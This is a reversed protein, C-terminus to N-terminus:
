TQTVKENEKKWQKLITNLASRPDKVDEYPNKNFILKSISPNEQAESISDLHSKSLTEGLHPFANILLTLHFIPTSNIKINPKLTKIPESVVNRKELNYLHFYKDDVLDPYKQVAAIFAEKGIHTKLIEEGKIMKIANFSGGKSLFSDPDENEQFFFVRVEFGLTIFLLTAKISAKYGAEDGDYLLKVRSTYRKLLLVQEETLGTGLSAVTNFYKHEWMRGVDILGEVLIAHNVIQIEKKAKYLGYLTMRRKFYQNDICNIYKIEHNVLTRGVFGVVGLHNKIPFMLRNTFTSFSLEQPTDKYKQQLLGFEILKEKYTPFKKLLEFADSGSYGLELETAIGFQLKREQIYSTVEKLREKYYNSVETLVELNGIDTKIGAINAIIQLAENSSINEIEKVFTLANGGAKCGFCYYVQKLTNISLSPNKDAHFPCLARNDEPDFTNELKIYNSIIETIDIQKLLDYTNM